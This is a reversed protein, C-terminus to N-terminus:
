RRIVILHTCGEHYADAYPALHASQSSDVSKYRDLLRYM